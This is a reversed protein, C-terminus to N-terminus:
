KFVKATCAAAPSKGRKAFAQLRKFVETEFERSDEPVGALIDPNVPRFVKEQYLFRIEDSYREMAQEDRMDDYSRPVISALKDWYLLPSRIWPGATPIDINPYYLVTRANM